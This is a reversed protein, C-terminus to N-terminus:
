SAALFARVHPEAEDVSHIWTIRTDSPRFWQAQRRALRRTARKTEEIAEELTIAGSLYRVVQSYGISSMSSADAPVGATLLHQVEEVFGRAFMEDVRTDILRDLEERPLDVGLLLYDFDPQRREQWESIPKGTAEYV